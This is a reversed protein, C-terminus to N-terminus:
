PSLANPATLPHNGHVRIIKLASGCLRLTLLVSPPMSRSPAYVHAHLRLRVYVSPLLLIGSGCGAQTRLFPRLHM